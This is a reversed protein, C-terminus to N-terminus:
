TKMKEAKRIPHIYVNRYDTAYIGAAACHSAESIQCCHLEAIVSHHELSLCM